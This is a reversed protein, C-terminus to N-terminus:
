LSLDKYQRSKFVSSGLGYGQGLLSQPIRVECIQECPLYTLQFWPFSSHRTSTNECTEGEM